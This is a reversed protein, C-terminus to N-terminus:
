GQSRLSERALFVILLGAVLQLPVFAWFAMSPSSADAILGGLMPGMVGGTEGILRRLTQLRARAHEPIVDYTYTAMTGLALGTAVGTLGILVSLGVIGTVFPFALFVLTAILTSPAVVAKRGRMDSLVGTPAIMLVNVLGYIGFLTGLATSSYGLQLGVYLPVLSTILAGRMMAVFTNFTIVVYTTRFYPDM